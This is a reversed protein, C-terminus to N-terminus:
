NFQMKKEREEIDASYIEPGVVSRIRNQTSAIGGCCGTPNTVNAVRALASAALCSKCTPENETQKVISPRPPTPSQSPGPDTSPHIQFTVRFPSGNANSM